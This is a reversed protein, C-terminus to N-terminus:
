LLIDANRLDVASVPPLIEERAYAEGTLIAKATRILKYGYTPYLFTATLVKDTVAPIGVRSSGDIGLYKINDYGLERAKNAASIAMIDSHAYILDVDPYLRLLSDVKVATTDPNWNANVSAVIKMGPYDALGNVFGKHRSLTPTVGPSGKIEIINAGQPFLSLAYAAAERGIAENDVELHATYSQGNIRRDFTVVPIGKDFAEKVIDTVSDADTPNVIILDFDNDIFYRIDEIQRESLDDASRIEVDVNDYFMVEREIEDNTQWRWADSSCQAVGIKYDKGSNGCSVSMLVLGVCIIIKLLFRIM